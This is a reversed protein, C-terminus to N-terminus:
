SAEVATRWSRITIARRSMPSDDGVTDNAKGAIVLWKGRAARRRSGGAVVARGRRADYAADANVRGSPGRDAVPEWRAGSWSWVKDREGDKPDGPGGVLVVRQMQLDYYGVAHDTRPGESPVRPDTSASQAAIVTSWLLALVVLLFGHSVIRM